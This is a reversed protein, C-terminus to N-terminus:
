SPGNALGIIPSVTCHYAQETSGLCWVIDNSRAPRYMPEERENGFCYCRGCASKGCCDNYSIVYDKGDDPNRCTGIWTIPSVVTGPPCSTHSGGCCSCLFGDLACNRWYECTAPDGSDPIGTAARIRSMPLLPIAFGGVMFAGLRRLFSRRPVRRALLRAVNETTADIKNM